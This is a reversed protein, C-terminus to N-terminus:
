EEGFLREEKPQEAKAEAVMKVAEEKTKKCYESLFQWKPMYGNQSLQYAFIKDEKASYTIDLFDIKMKEKLTEWDEAPMDTEYDAMVNLAYFLNELCSTLADRINKITRLTEQDDAQVQTATVMGTKEDFVFMGQSFGCKMSIMSLITNIDEKRQETLLTSVHEHIKNDENVGVGMEVGQVWRPLKVNHQKAYRIVSQPLFTMHKSDQVEGSKRSWAVDLDKLEVMCNHWIPVGLSSTRDLRNPVPNKFYAFLPKEINYGTIDEPLDPWAESLSCPKGIGGFEGTEEGYPRRSYYRGTKRKYAQNTIRYVREGDEADEFRHWELRTYTYEGKKIIDQFVCGWINGNSDVDTPAFSGPEVYDVNKGNPKFMIGANSIGESVKDQLVQMVYDAQKQLYQGRPTEPMKIIGELTVLGATVDGIFGAFNISEIDDEKDAWPPNGSTINYFRDIWTEMEPSLMLNVDFKDEIEKRFLKNWVAKIWSILGM